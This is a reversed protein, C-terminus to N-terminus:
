SGGVCNNSSSDMTLIQNLNLNVEEGEREKGVWFLWKFNLMGMMGWLCEREVELTWKEVNLKASIEAM